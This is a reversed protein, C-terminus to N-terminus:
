EVDGNCPPPVAAVSRRRTTSRNSALPPLGHSAKVVVPM